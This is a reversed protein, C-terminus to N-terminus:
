AALLGQEDRRRHSSRRIGILLALGCLMLAATAPEPVAAVSGTLSFAANFASQGAIDTGVRLWNPRSPM